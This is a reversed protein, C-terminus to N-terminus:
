RRSTDIACRVAWGHRFRVNLGRWGFFDVKLFLADAAPKTGRM